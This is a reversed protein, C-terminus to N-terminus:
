GIFGSSSRANHFLMPRPGLGPSGTARVVDRRVRFRRLRGGWPHRVGEADSASRDVPTVRQGERGRRGRGQGQGRRRRGGHGPGAAEYFEGRPNELAALAVVERKLFIALTWDALVRVKRNFTPVAMGHYGRHCSGPRGAAQLKITGFLIAVGKHLGLGAVAGLNKHKYEQQPFGRMGSISTTASCSPRACRTSRTRRAGPARPGRGPGAGPRQRRGGLRLRHGPGPPEAATDVHGRPGLPLGFRALAPNPKVGATWVITSADVEIGNSLVVHKDVCSDMSPRWRSRSAASACSSRPGVRRAGPRGRPPDPQRGRRPHLAHGRAQRQHVVQVRRPGHGGDRRHDRRRRLRRRRLRLDPGQPPADQDKTSDALDLQAIVHNRLSIAEEVQKFGIGNEALGPIPLTRPVSGVAVVLYDFALEYAEGAIPEVTRAGQPRSRGLRGQRHPGRGEPM